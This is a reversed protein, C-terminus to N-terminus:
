TPISNALSVRIFTKAEKAITFRDSHFVRVGLDTFTREVAEGSLDTNLALCRYYPWPHGTQVADFTQNFLENAAIAMEQKNQLVTEAVPSELVSTLLQVNLSSTKVNINFLAQNVMPAYIPPIVLYAVLLGPCLVKAAGLLYLTQNPLLSQFTPLSDEIFPVTLLAMSDEEIVVLNYKEIVAVLEQQRKASMMIGTPNNCFPMLYVGDIDKVRCNKDLDDASMGEYDILIPVVEINMYLALEMFNAYTYQDVAIRSGSKFLSSLIITLGNQVGSVISINEPKTEVGVKKLWPLVAQKQQLTGTQHQYNLDTEWHTAAVTERLIPTLLTNCEAFSHVMGLDILDSDDDTSAITTHVLANPSIFTGKGIVTYLLGTQRGYAYAKSITSFNIDLYDALERQSPLRIDKKVKNQSLDSKLQEILSKYLPRGLKAKDPFWSLSDAHYQNISM